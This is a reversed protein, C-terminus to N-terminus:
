LRVAVLNGSSYYVAYRGNVPHRFDIIATGSQTTAYLLGHRRQLEGGVWFRCNQVFHGGPGDFAQQRVIGKWQYPSSM